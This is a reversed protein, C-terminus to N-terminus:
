SRVTGPRARLASHGVHSTRDAAHASPRRAPHDTGAGRDLLRELGGVAAQHAQPHRTPQQGGALSPSRSVGRHEAVPDISIVLRAFRWSRPKESSASSPSRQRREALGEGSARSTIALGVAPASAHLAPRCWGARRRARRPAPPAAVATAWTRRARRRRRRPAGAPGVTRRRGPRVGASRRSRRTRAAPRRPAGAPRRGRRRAPPPRVRARRRSPARRPGAARHTRALESSTASRPRVCM